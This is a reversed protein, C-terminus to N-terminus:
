RDTQPRAAIGLGFLSRESEQLNASSLLAGSRYDPTTKVLASVMMRAEREEVRNGECVSMGGRADESRRSM